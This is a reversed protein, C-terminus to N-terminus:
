QSKGGLTQIAQSSRDDQQRMMSDVREFARTVEILRTMETVGNVNSNEIFGQVVGNNPSAQVPVPAKDPIVSGTPGYRLKSDPQFEYLGIAGVQVNNQYIAGDSAIRPVGNAPEIQLPAGGNDLFPYGQVSVLGGDETMIMRGDRTYVQGNPTQLSFYSDGNVALDLPNGTQTVPGRVTSIYSKGASAFNVNKDNDRAVPSVLTDFKMEESRFGPTNVNAMNRAITEMRRDLSIQGSIGVYVPNQM